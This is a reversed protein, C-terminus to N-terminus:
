RKENRSPVHTADNKSRLRSAVRCRSAFYREEADVISACLQRYTRLHMGKPREPIAEVISGSGGLRQRIARAQRAARRGPDLHESQYGLRACRRCRWVPGPESSLYLSLRSHDCTPCVLWRHRMVRHVVRVDVEQLRGDSARLIVIDPQRENEQVEWSTTGDVALCPRLTVSPTDERLNRGQGRPRGGYMGTM